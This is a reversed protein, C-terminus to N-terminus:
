KSSDQDLNQNIGKPLVLPCHHKTFHDSSNTFGRLNVLVIDGKPNNVSLDGYRGQIIEYVNGVVFGLENLSDLSIRYKVLDGHKLLTQNM